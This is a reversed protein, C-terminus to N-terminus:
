GLRGVFEDNFLEVNQSVPAAALGIQRMKM